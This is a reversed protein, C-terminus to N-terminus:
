MVHSLRQALYVGGNGQPLNRCRLWSMLLSLLSSSRDNIACDHGSRLNVVEKVTGNRVM